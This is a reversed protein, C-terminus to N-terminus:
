KMRKLLAEFEVDDRISALDPETLLDGVGRWGAEALDNLLDFCWTKLRKATDPDRASSSAVAYVCAVQYRAALDLSPTKLLESAGKEVEPIQGLRARVLLAEAATFVDRRDIAAVKDRDALCTEFHTRSAIANEVLGLIGSRDSRLFTAVGLRYHAGSLRRRIDM